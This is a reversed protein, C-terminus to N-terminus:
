HVVQGEKADLLLERAHESLEGNSNTAVCELHDLSGSSAILSLYYLADVAIRQDAHDTMDIIHDQYDLMWDQDAFTEIVATLGIRVVLATDAAKLLGIMADRASENESIAKEATDLEGQSLAQVLTEKWNGVEDQKLLARIEDASRAGTFGIGNILYFPVSRIHHQKALEEHETVDIIDLSSIEGQHLMNSFLHEMQPCIACGPMVFLQIEFQNM